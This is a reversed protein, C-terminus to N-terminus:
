NTAILLFRAVAAARRVRHVPLGRETEWRKVTREARGFFAAIEKWSDLRHAAVPDRHASMFPFHGTNARIPRFQRKRPPVALVWLIVRIPVIGDGM